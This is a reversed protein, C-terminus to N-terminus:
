SVYRLNEAAAWEKAEAEAQYKHHYRGIGTSQPLYEKYERDWVMCVAFHGSIGYSTTIFAQNM